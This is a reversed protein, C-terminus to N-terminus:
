VGYDLEVSILTRDLESTAGRVDGELKQIESALRKLDAEQQKMQDIYSKRLDKEEASSRLSRLNNRIRDQDSAITKAETKKLELEASLKSLAAKKELVDRLFKKAQDNLLGSQDFALLTSDDVSRVEIGSAMEYTEVVEITAKEQAGLAPIEFRYINLDQEFPKAPARLQYGNRRPHEIVIRRPEPNKNEFRYSKTEVLDYRSTMMGNKITIRRVRDTKSDLKSEAKVGLDVAFPVYRLEGMKVSDLYAEGAYTAGDLLTMPGGELVVGSTNVFRVASLPNTSRANERYLSVRTGEVPAAVIPLLASRNRPITM